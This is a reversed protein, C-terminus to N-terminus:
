TELLPTEATVTVQDNVQGLEMPFDITLTQAVSLNVNDRVLSKFGPAAVNFRYTGPQLYPLRYVGASTTVATTEVNTQTNTAKVTVNPLVAGSADTVTGNFTGREGQGFVLMSAALFLLVRICGM